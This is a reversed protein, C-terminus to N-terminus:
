SWSSGQRLGPRGADARPRPLRPGMGRVVPVGVQRADLHRRRQVHPALPRQAAAASRAARVSRAASTSGATSTTTTSSSPGCCGPWRRACSTPAEDASLSAPIVTAYFEDAERRRADFVADFAAGFPAALRQRARGAPPPEFGSGSGASGGAEIDLATTRRPRRARRRGPEGRGSPRRRRLRRDRGQRVADRNPAGFLREINTENETFLLEPAGECCSAAPRRAGRPRRSSAAAEGPSATCRRGPADRRRRWSWTNRFWLTPLLHLTPREPGRNHVTIRVLIDDPSAKAYEVDVDFYRDEDFVGTDLLEYELDTARGRRREDRRPRRVPVGGAPVQLPVAHVLADAHRRPLLLVGQRGRRPQGRANTLGFLREKLIPDRATGCPSRSACGSRDDSIGALGDEGWRYARSRAQDHTFYAWADGDESYDERVTGWQRESLYPGWRRWPTGDRAEALRRHEATDPAPTM